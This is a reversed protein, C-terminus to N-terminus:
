NDRLSVDGALVRVLRGDDLRLLLSGDAAVDEATGELEEGGSIRVKHGLTNLAQRWQEFIAQKETVLSLYLGDLEVLLRRAIELRSISGGTQGSLSAAIGAIEPHANINVNVNIGIGIASYAVKQGCVGSEVLIGCVKKGELLVDNPWKLRAELGTVAKISRVVALSAIMILYPLKKIDPYLVVSLSVGGEASLWERGLRGRGATQRDSIVVTGEIANGSAEKKAEDQTSSLVPHYLVQRGIIKTKLGASITQSNLENETM